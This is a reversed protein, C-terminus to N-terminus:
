KNNFVVFAKMNWLLRSDTGNLDITVTYTIDGKSTQGLQKIREVTGTMSLEPIADYTITAPDGPQINIIDLEALDTTELKWTEMDGLMVVVAPSVAQGPKLDSSIITGSFPAILELDKLGSLAAEKQARANTLSAELIALQAPDPGNKWKDYTSRADALNAEAVSLRADGKAIKEPDPLEMAKNLNYLAKDKALRANSLKSLFVARELDSAGRDKYPEYDDEANKFDDLALFYVARMGDLTTNSVQQYDLSKRADTANKMEIQAKALVLEADALSLKSKELFDDMDKQAKLFLLEAQTVAANARDIGKLRAIVGDKLVTEGESVLVEDVIGSLSFSLAANQAPIIRAETLTRPPFPTVTSPIATPKNMTPFVSCGTVILGTLLMISITHNKISQYNM